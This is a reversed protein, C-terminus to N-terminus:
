VMMVGDARAAAPNEINAHRRLYREGFLNKGAELHLFDPQFDPSKTGVTAASGSTKVVVSDQFRFTRESVIHFKQLSAHFEDVFVFDADGLARRHTFVHFGIEPAFAGFDAPVEGHGSLGLALAVRFRRFDQLGDSPLFRDVRGEERFQVPHDRALVLSFM